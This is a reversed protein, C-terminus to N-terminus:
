RCAAAPRAPLTARAADPKLPVTMDPKLRVERLIGTWGSKWPDAGM